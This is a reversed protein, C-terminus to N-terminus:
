PIATQSPVVSLRGRALRRRVDREPLGLGRVREPSARWLAVEWDVRAPRGELVLEVERPGRPPVRDDAIEHHGAADVRFRRRLVTRVADRPAGAPWARVELQRFVDGTPVAHGARDARLVLRVRTREGDREARGEVEIARRLLRRDLGGPLDHSHHGRGREPLHCGQCPTGRHPSDMWEEVTRQLLETQREFAFQHCRACALTGALEPAERSEHPAEGSVTPNLVAGDRVHCVACDIGALADERPAHCRDCYARQRLQYEAEFLPNTFSSRHASRRWERYHRAHCRGCEVASVGDIGAPTPGPDVPGGGEPIGLHPDLSAADQALALSGLILPALGALARWAPACGRGSSRSSRRCRDIGRASSGPRGM